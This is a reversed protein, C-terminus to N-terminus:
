PSKFPTSNSNWLSSGVGRWGWLTKNAQVRQGSTDPQHAGCPGEAHGPAAKTRLLPEVFLRAPLLPSCKHAPDPEAAAETQPSCCSPRSAPCLKHSPSTPVQLFSPQARHSCRLNKNRQSEYTGFTFFLSHSMAPPLPLVLVSLTDTLSIPDSQVAGRSSISLPFFLKSDETHQPECSHLTAQRSLGQM